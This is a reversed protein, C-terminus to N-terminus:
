NYLHANYFSKELDEKQKGKDEYYNEMNADHLLLQM